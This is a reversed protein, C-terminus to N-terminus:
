PNMLNLMADALQPRVHDDSPHLANLHPVDLVMAEDANPRETRQFNYVFSGLTFAFLVGALALDRGAIRLGRLGAHAKRGEQERIRAHLRTLFYATGDAGPEPEGGARVSALLSRSRAATLWSRQCAHCTAAHSALPPPPSASLAGPHRALYDELAVVYQKCPTM